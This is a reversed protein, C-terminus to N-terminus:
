AAPKTDDTQALRLMPQNATQRVAYLPVIALVSRGDPLRLREVHAVEVCGDIHMGDSSTVIFVTDDGAAVRDDDLADIVEYTNM